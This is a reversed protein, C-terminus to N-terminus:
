VAPQIPPVPPPPSNQISSTPSNSDINKLGVGFLIIYLGISIIKILLIIFLILSLFSSNSDFVINYGLILSGYASASIGSIFFSFMVVALSYILYIIGAIIMIKGLTVEKKFPKNKFYRIGPYLAAAFFVFSIIFSVLVMKIELFGTIKGFSSSTFIKIISFIANLMNFAILFIMLIGLTRSRM